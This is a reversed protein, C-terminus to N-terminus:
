RAQASLSKAASTITKWCSELREAFRREGSAAFQCQSRVPSFCADSGEKTVSWYSTSRRLPVTISHATAARSPV